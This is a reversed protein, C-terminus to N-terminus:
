STDGGHCSEIYYFSKNIQYVDEAKKQNNYIVNLYHTGSTKYFLHKIIIYIDYGM